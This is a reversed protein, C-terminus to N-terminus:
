QEHHIFCKSLFLFWNSFSLCCIISPTVGFWSCLVHTLLGFLVAVPRLWFTNVMKRCLLRFTLVRCSKGGRFINKYISESLWFHLLLFFVLLVLSDIHRGMKYNAQLLTHWLSVLGGLWAESFHLGQTGGWFEAPSEWACHIFDLPWQESYSLIFAQPSWVM